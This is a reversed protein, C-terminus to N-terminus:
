RGGSYWAQLSDKPNATLHHQRVSPPRHSPVLVHQKIAASIADRTTAATASWGITLAPVGSATPLGKGTRGRGVALAGEEGALM